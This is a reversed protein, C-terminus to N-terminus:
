AGPWRWRTATNPFDSEIWAFARAPRVEYLPSGEGAESLNMGYKKMYSANLAEMDPSEADRAEGEVIVCDDGSELHVVVAPNHELNKAKQTEAGTGFYLAGAHWVGWVPMAHPRGDPRTTCIWYNRSDELKRETDSWSLPGPGGDEPLGYGKM